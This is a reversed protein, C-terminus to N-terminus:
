AYQLDRLAPIKELEAQVRAAHALNDKQNPGYVPTPSGFSMVENVMDAPGFSLRLSALRQEIEADDLGDKRLHARLWGGLRRPLEERLEANLDEVRVGSVHRLAIRLTAEEPGSSWLYIAQNSFGPPTAGVFGVTTEVKDKEVM